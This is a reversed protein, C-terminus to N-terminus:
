CRFTQYKNAATSESKFLREGVILARNENSPLLTLCPLVAYRTVQVEPLTTGKSASAVGEAPVTASATPGKSSSSGSARKGRAM